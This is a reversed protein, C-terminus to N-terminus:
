CTSLWVGPAQGNEESDDLWEYTYRRPMTVAQLRGSDCSAIERQLAYVIM